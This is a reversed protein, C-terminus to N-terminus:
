EVRWELIGGSVNPRLQVELRLARTQVPDFTVRNFKDKLVGYGSANEVPEWGDNSKYSLRWSAPVRCEGTGTDDFWYVDARSLRVPTEFDYQVWDVGGRHNWWTFRPISLDSSRKPEIQDNVAEVCDLDWTHSASPTCISAVTTQQKTPAFADWYVVYPHEYERYFPIFVSDRQKARATTRFVKASGLFTLPQGEVPELSKVIEDPKEMAVAFRKGPETRTCLLIPGYMLALRRPNDRFSETRLKMPMSYDITDGDRWTRHLSVYSQPSSRVPQLQGNVKVEVSRTWYPHRLKVTLETPKACAITLRTTEEDPFRTEQRLTVGQSRWSLESAIFLNVWLTNRGDHLYISNGYMCNREMSTSTCCWMSDFPTGFQKSCGSRLPLFYVTMATDPHQSALLDNFLGREYYDMYEAKPEWCFLHRTLKHMNYVVCTEATQDSISESLKEKPSFFEHDTNGGNAYSRERAVCQWYFVAATRLRKDGTLEYQRAAAILKPMQTNGHLGTLRDEQRMLPDLVAHHNFRQAARLYKEEGTAGYLCALVDAMGGHENEGLVRQLEADSLRNIRRAAWDCAKKCTELAQRNDALVYMDLLGADIKHVNYWPAWVRQHSELRDFFSEPYGSLYGNGLKAQCEAMGRVLSDAKAKIQEDGTAGYLLACATLYHGAVAGRVEVNPADWGGYPRATTPLGATVRFNYLLRDPEISLLYKRNAETAQRFPGELLRVDRLDFAYARITAKNPVRVKEDRWSPADAHALSTSAWVAGLVIWRLLSHSRSKREERVSRVTQSQM